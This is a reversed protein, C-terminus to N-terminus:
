ERSAAAHTAFWAVTRELGDRFSVVPRYGILETARDIAAHSHRVDGPRPDEFVPTISTGLIENLTGVLDLLSYREGIGVNMATGFAAATAGKSAAGGVVTSPDLGAGLLNAAIANDIYTFDRSHRGDGFIIPSKGELMRTVFRPVVAAYASAPDQRPGFVNFYRFAVTEIGHQKSWMSALQELALKSMAYPSMPTLPMEEHKPLTPTDGYVSSSSAMVVRGVGAQRGVELLMATGEINVRLTSAPDEFSRPVSPIAAQHFVAAVGDVVERLIERDLISGQVFHLRRSSGEVEDQVMGLNDQKGSSLDDLVVVEDGRRLLSAVLHSGIFGAGGTVLYRM